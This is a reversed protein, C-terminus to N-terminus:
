KNKPSKLRRLHIGSAPHSGLFVARDSAFYRAEGALM